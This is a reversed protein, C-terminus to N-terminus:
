DDITPDPTDEVITVPKHWAEIRWDCEKIQREIAAVLFSNQPPDFILRVRLYVDNFVLDLDERGELLQEWTATKDKISFGQVPGVGLQTMVMLAGNIHMILEPDFNTDASGIGHMQKISDLISVM